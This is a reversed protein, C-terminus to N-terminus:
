QGIAGCPSESVIFDDVLQAVFFPGEEENPMAEYFGSCDCIIPTFDDIVKALIPIDHTFEAGLFRHAPITRNRHFPRFRDRHSEIFHHIRQCFVRTQKTIEYPYEAARKGLSVILHVPQGYAVNLM